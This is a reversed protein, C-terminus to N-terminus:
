LLAMVSKRRPTKLGAAEQKSINDVKVGKEDKLGSVFDNYIKGLAIRRMQLEGEQNNTLPGPLIFKTNHKIDTARCRGYNVKM